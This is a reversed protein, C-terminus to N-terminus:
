PSWIATLANTFNFTSASCFSPASDRYWLQYHRTLGASVLGKISVPVNNPPTAGSPYTSANAVATVVGLRIVTGSVCRLGDGFAVGLGGSARADGQFYLGAGDPVGTASLSLTDASVRM